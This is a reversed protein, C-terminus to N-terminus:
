LEWSIVKRRKGCIGGRRSKEKQVKLEALICGWGWNITKFSQLNVITEHQATGDKHLSM